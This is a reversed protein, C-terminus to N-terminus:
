LINELQEILEPHSPRKANADIIKGKRDILIFRPIGEVMYQELFPHDENEIFLHIGELEKNQIMNKWREITDDICISISVFEKQKFENVVNQLPGFEKICPACWTAWLDIYVIKGRFSSLSISDGEYSLLNFNPSISGRSIKKIQRYDKELDKIYIESVLM